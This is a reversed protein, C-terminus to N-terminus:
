PVLPELVGLAALTAIVATAGAAVARELSSQASAVPLLCGLVFEIGDDVEGEAQFVEAGEALLVGALCLVAGLRLLGGRNRFVWGAIGFFIGGGIGMAFWAIADSAGGGAAYYAANAITLVAGGCFAALAWSRALAGFAFAVALWLGDTSLGIDFGSTAEEAASAAGLATGAVLV